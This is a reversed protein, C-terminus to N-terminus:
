AKETPEPSGLWSTDFAQRFGLSEADSPPPNHTLGQSLCANPSLALPPPEGTKELASISFTM